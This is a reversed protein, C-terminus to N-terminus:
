SIFQLAKSDKQKIKNRLAHKIIWRTDPNTSFKWQDIFVWTAEENDKLYDNLNNAVLKKVFMITDEMMQKLIEFVPGPDDIFLTLKKAWPLRPRIGESALRRVHFNSDTAWTQMIPIMKGPYHEIYPRIAFEGTHRKTLEYIASISLDPHELGFEEIYKAVPMLWYAEKFMGTENQNEPGIIKMLVSLGQEYSGRLHKKLGHALLNVRGKLEYNKYQANVAKQFSNQQFEPYVTKIKESLLQALEPGFWDKLQTPKQDKM